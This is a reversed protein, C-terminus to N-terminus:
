PSPPRRVEFAVMALPGVKCEVPDVECVHRLTSRLGEASLGPRLASPSGEAVHLVGDPAVVRWLEALAREPQDAPLAGICIVADFGGDLEGALAEVGGREFSVHDSLYRRRAFRISEGDPDLAVVGGSPGVLDALRAAGAGTRCRADLVRDGPRVLAEAPRYADLATPGLLDVYPRDVSCRIRMPPRSGFTADYEVEARAALGALLSRRSRPTFTVGPVRVTKSHGLLGRWLRNLWAPARRRPAPPLTLLM